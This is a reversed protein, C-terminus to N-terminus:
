PVTVTVPASIAVGPTLDVVTAPDYEFTLVQDLVDNPANCWWSENGQGDDGSPKCYISLRPDNGWPSNGIDERIGAVSTLGEGKMEKAIAADVGAVVPSIAYITYDGAPIAAAADTIERIADSHADIEAQTHEADDSWGHEANYAAIEAKTVCSFQGQLAAGTGTGVNTRYLDIWALDGPDAAWVVKGDRTAVVASTTGLVDITTGPDAV